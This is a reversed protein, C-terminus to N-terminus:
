EGYEEQSIVVLAKALNGAATGLLLSLAALLTAATCLRGYTKVFALLLYLLTLTGNIEGLDIHARMDTAFLLLIFALVHFVAYCALMVIPARRLAKGTRKFGKRIHRKAAVKAPEALIFRLAAPLALVTCLLLLPVAVLPFLGWLARVLSFAYGESFIAKIAAFHAGASETAIFFMDLLTGQASTTIFLAALPLLLAALACVAGLVRITGVRPGLLRYPVTLYIGNGGAARRIARVAPLMVALSIGYILIVEISLGFGGIAADAAAPGGNAMHYARFSLDAPLPALAAFFGGYVALDAIAQLRLLKGASFLILMGCLASLCASIVLILAPAVLAGYADPSALVRWVTLPELLLEEGGVTATLVDSIPNSSFAADCLRSILLAFVSTGGADAELVASYRVFADVFLYLLPLFFVLAPFFVQRMRLQVPERSRRMKKRKERGKEKESECSVLATEYAGAPAEATKAADQEAVRPLFAQAPAPAEPSSQAGQTPVAPADFVESVLPAGCHTCYSGRCETGCVKCIM